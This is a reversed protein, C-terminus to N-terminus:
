KGDENTAAVMARLLEDLGPTPIRYVLKIVPHEGPKLGDFEVAIPPPIDTQM